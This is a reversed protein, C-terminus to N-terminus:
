FRKPIHALVPKPLNSKDVNHKSIKFGHTKDFKYAFYAYILAMLGDNQLKGKVYTQHPMGNRIVVKSEMSCCQKVLWIIREYSAWPFRIKGKRLM